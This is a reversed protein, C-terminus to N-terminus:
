KRLKEELRRRVAPWEDALISYYVTDRPTGDEAIMHRRFIGEETAGLRLIAQRSAANLANTKLEVRHCGLTEFEYTLMLLKAETNAASRQWRPALWTWGIEVRRHELAINGFRTSGIVEGTAQWVTAFPRSIGTSAEALANEVYRRMDDPTRIRNLTWRWLAPELGIAVLGPLHEISLPELRVHRGEITKGNEAM